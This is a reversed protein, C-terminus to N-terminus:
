IIMGFILTVLCFIIIDRIFIRKKIANIEAEPVIPANYYAEM